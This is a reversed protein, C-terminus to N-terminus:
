CDNTLIQCCQTEITFAEIPVDVGDISMSVPGSHKLTVEFVGRPHRAPLQLPRRAPFLRFSQYISEFSAMSASDDHVFVSYREDIYRKLSLAIPCLACDGEKGNQIDTETVHITTLM